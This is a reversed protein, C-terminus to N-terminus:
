KKLQKLIDFPNKKESPDFEAEFCFNEGEKKPYDDILLALQEIALGALDIEGDKVTDVIEDSLDFEEEDRLNKSPNTDIMYQFNSGYKKIFNELSIVSKLVVEAKFSGKVDLMHRKKDLRLKFSAEFKKVNEVKLLETLFKLDDDSAKLIYTSEASSIDDVILPYSFDKQM